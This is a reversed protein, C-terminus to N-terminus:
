PVHPTPTLIGMSEVLPKKMEAINVILMGQWALMMSTLTKVTEPLATTDSIFFGM